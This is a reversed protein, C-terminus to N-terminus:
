LTSTTTYAGYVWYEAGGWWIRHWGGSLGARVYKQPSAATGVVAYGTGPGTRVNLADVTVTVVTVGTAQTLYTGSCWGTRGDFWIKYWGSQQAIAVYRQGSAVSGIISYSTSPGTRVNLSSTTVQMAKLVATATGGSTGNKVLSMYYSWNFYPGPDGAPWNPSIENHGVIHSRDMPIGYKLCVYRTVRASARYQADTWYNAWSYGEHEIGISHANYYTWGTHFGIDGEELMQWITGSYGVVFHTSVGASCNQFWSIGASASGQITHIVVYTIGRASTSNQYNCPSAPTWVVPPKEQACLLLTALVLHM